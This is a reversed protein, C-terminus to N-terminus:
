EGLPTGPTNSPIRIPGCRSDEKSMPEDHAVTSGPSALHHVRVVVVVADGRLEMSSPGRQHVADLAVLSTDIPEDRAGRVDIMEPDELTSVVERVSVQGSAVLVLVEEDQAVLVDRNTRATVPVVSVDATVADRRTMVNIDRTPGDILRACTVVDGSFTFPEMPGLTHDVGDVDLIVGAGDIVMIVRDVGEFASFPGSRTVDAVSVRWAFDSLSSGPPSIVVEETSGGGNKWASRPRRTRRLVRSTM